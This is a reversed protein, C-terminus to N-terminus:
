LFLNKCKKGIHLRAQLSSHLCEVNIASTFEQMFKLKQMVIMINYKDLILSFKFNRNKVGVNVFVCSRRSYDFSLTKDGFGNESLWLCRITAHFCDYM